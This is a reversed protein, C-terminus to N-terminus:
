ESEGLVLQLAEALRTKLSHMKRVKRYGHVAIQIRQEEYTLYYQIKEELEQLSHWVEM